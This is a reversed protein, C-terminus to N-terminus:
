FSNQSFVYLYIKKLLCKRRNNNRSFFLPNKKLIYNSILHAQFDQKATTAVSVTHWLGVSEVCVCECLQSSQIESGWFCGAATLWARTEMETRDLCNLYSFRPTMLESFFFFLAKRKFESIYNWGAYALSLSLPTKYPSFYLCLAVICTKTLCLIFGGDGLKGKKVLCFCSSFFCCSPPFSLLLFFLWFFREISVM